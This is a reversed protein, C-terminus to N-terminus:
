GSLYVFASKDNIYKWIWEGQELIRHQVYIKDEQDRSFATYVKLNGNSEMTEWEERYLYDM